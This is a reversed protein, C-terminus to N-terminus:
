SLPPMASRYSPKKSYPTKAEDDLCLRSRDIVTKLGSKVGESGGDEVHPYIVPYM